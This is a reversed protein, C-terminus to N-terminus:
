DCYGPLGTDIKSAKSLEVQYGLLALRNLIIGLLIDVASFAKGLLWGNGGAGVQYLKTM